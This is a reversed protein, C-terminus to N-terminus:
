IRRSGEPEVGLMRRTIPLDHVCAPCLLKTQKYQQTMRETM